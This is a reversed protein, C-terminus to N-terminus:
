IICNGARFMGDMMSPCDAIAQQLTGIGLLFDIQTHHRCGSSFDFQLDMHKHILTQTDHFERSVIRQGGETCIHSGIGPGFGAPTDRPLSVGPICVRTCEM